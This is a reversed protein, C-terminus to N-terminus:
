VHPVYEMNARTLIVEYTKPFVSLSSGEENMGQITKRYVMQKNKGRSSPLYIIKHLYFAVLVVM